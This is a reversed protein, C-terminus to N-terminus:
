STEDDAVAAAIDNYWQRLAKFTAVPPQFQFFVVFFIM